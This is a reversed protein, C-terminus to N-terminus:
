KFPDPYVKLSAENFRREREEWEKLIKQYIQEELRFPKKIIQPEAKEILFIYKYFILGGLILALFFLILITLFSHEALIRPLRKIFDKIRGFKIKSFLKM